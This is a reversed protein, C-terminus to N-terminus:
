PTAMPVMRNGPLARMAMANYASLAKDELTKASNYAQQVAAFSMPDKARKASGFAMLKAHADKTAVRAVDLASAEQSDDM